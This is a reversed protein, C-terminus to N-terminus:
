SIYNGNLWVDEAWEWVSEWEDDSFEGDHWHKVEGSELVGYYSGNLECIPIYERPLGQNWANAAVEPLYTNLQPDTVTVPEISGYVVDSVALLFEKFERPLGILIQEEIEVLQDLDPLAVSGFRDENRERLEDVVDNM